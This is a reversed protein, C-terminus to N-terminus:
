WQTFLPLLKSFLTSHGRMPPVNAGSQGNCAWTPKGSINM